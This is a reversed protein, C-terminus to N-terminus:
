DSSTGGAKRIRLDLASAITDGASSWTEDFKEQILDLGSAVLLGYASINFATERNLNTVTLAPNLQPPQDVQPLLSKAM